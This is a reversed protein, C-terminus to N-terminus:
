TGEIVTGGIRRAALPFSIGVPERKETKNVDGDRNTWRSRGTELAGEENTVAQRSRSPRLEDADSIAGSLTRPLDSLTRPLHYSVKGIPISLGHVVQPLKPNLPTSPPSFPIM